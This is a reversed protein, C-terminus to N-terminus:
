DVPPREFLTRTPGVAPALPAGNQPAGPQTTETVNAGSERQHAAQAKLNAFLTGATDLERRGHEDFTAHLRRTSETDLAWTTGVNFAESPELDVQLIELLSGYEHKLNEFMMRHLRQSKARKDGIQEELVILDPGMGDVAPMKSAEVVILLVGRRKLRQVVAGDNMLLNYLTWMGSNSLVGGDTLKVHSPKPLSMIASLTLRAPDTKMQIMPFGFPFNASARVASTLGVDFGPLLDGLAYIGDREFVDTLIQGAAANGKLRAMVTSPERYLGPPLPSIVMAHSDLTCSNFLPLPFPPLPNKAADAALWDRRLNQQIKDGGLFREWYSELSAGRGVTLSAAGVMTPLLFDDSVFDVMAKGPDKRIDSEIEKEADTSATRLGKLTRRLQVYAANALSGGSVSSIAQLHARISEPLADLTLATYIAARSGGGSAAIVVAPSDADHPYPWALAPKPEPAVVAPEVWIAKGDTLGGLILLGGFVLYIVSFFIPIWRPSPPADDIRIVRQTRVIVLGVALIALYAVVAWRGVFLGILGCLGVGVITMLRTPREDMFDWRDVVHAVVMLVSALSVTIGATRSGHMVKPLCFIFAFAIAQVGLALAVKILLGAAIQSRLRSFAPWRPIGNEPELAQLWPQWFARRGIGLIGFYFGLVINAVIGLLGFGIIGFGLRNGYILLNRIQEPGLLGALVLVAAFITTTQKGLFRQTNTSWHTRLGWGTARSESLFAEVDATLRRIDAPGVDEQQLLGHIRWWTGIVSEAAARTNVAGSPIKPVHLAMVLGRVQTLAFPRFEEVPQDTLRGPWDRVHYLFYLAQHAAQRAKRVFARYATTDLPASPDPM